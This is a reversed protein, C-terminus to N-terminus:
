IAWQSKNLSLAVLDGRDAGSRSRGLAGRSGRQGGPVRGVVQRAANQLDFESLYDMPAM